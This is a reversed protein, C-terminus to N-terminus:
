SSKYSGRSASEYEDEFYQSSTEFEAYFGKSSEDYEGEFEYSLDRSSEYYDDEYGNSKEDENGRKKKMFLRSLIIIIVVLACISGGIILNTKEEFISADEENISEKKVCNPNYVKTLSVTHINRTRKTKIRNVVVDRVTEILTNVQLKMCLDPLLFAGDDGPSKSVKSYGDCCPSGADGNYFVTVSIFCTASTKNQLGATWDVLYGTKTNFSKKSVERPDIDEFCSCSSEDCTPPVYFELGFEKVCDPHGRLKATQCSKHCIECMTDKHAKKRDAKEKDKKAQRMKQITEWFPFGSSEWHPPPHMPDGCNQQRFYDSTGKQKYTPHDISNGYKLGNDYAKKCIMIKAIPRM